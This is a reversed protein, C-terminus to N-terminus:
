GGAVKLNLFLCGDTARIPPQMCMMRSLRWAAVVKPVYARTEDYNPVGGSRQVAGEGANYGALALVADGRFENLLFDLYKVGGRINQSPNGRDTVGFRRATAPMLQMLGMAGAHSKVKPRGASEVAIVAVVLAPSIQTGTTAKLIETGFEEVIRDLTEPRPTLRAAESGKRDLAMMALELKGFDADGLAPSVDAWFWDMTSGPKVSHTPKKPKPLVDRPVDLIHPLARAVEQRPEVQINIMKGGDRDTPKVRKFTFGGSNWASPAAPATRTETKAVTPDTEPSKPPEPVEAGAMGAAIVCAIAALVGSRTQTM